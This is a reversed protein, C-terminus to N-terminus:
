IQNPVLNESWLEQIITSMSDIVYSGLIAGEADVVQTKVLHESRRGATIVEPKGVM